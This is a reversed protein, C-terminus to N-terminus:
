LLDRSKPAQVAETVEIRVKNFTGVFEDVSMSKVDYHRDLYFMTLKDIREALYTHDHVSFNLKFM